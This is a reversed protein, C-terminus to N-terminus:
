SEALALSILNGWFPPSEEELRRGITKYELAKAVRHIDLNPNAYPTDLYPYEAFLLRFGNARAYEEFHELRFYNLMERPRFLNWKERYLNFCFSDTNPVSAIFITGGDTLLNRALELKAKPDSLCQLVGRFIILDYRATEEVEDLETTIVNHRMKALNAAEGGIELGTIEYRSGVFRDLFRGDGCGVDLVRGSRVWRTILGFDHDYMAERNDAISQDLHHVESHYQQFYAERAAATLREKVYILGCSLCRVTHFLKGELTWTEYRPDGCWGCCSTNESINDLSPSM